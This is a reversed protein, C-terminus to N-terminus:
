IHPTEGGFHHLHVSDESHCAILFLIRMVNNVRAFLRHIFPSESLTLSLWNRMPSAKVAGFVQRDLPQFFLGM